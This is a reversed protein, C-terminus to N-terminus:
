PAVPELYLAHFNADEPRVGEFGFRVYCEGLSAGFLERNEWNVPARLADTAIVATYGTVPQFTADLLTIRLRSHTGLGSANVYMRAKGGASVKVACSVAQCYNAATPNGSVGSPYIPKLMGLRDRDWTALRVGTGENGKWLSYWYYTKDGVNEFGQGQMLAPMDAAPSGPQERAPILKFGPIPERHHIADHTVTLGLDISTYRRDGVPNGHWQGYIGLLVSGRNWLAAGLHVEERINWEHEISPGNLDNSRDLGVAACPSWHEFDASVFTALQRSAFAKHARTADQGNIYYKGRVKAIGAMEFFPGVPNLASLTWRLGDPSFAVCLRATGQNDAEYALKFRREPRPDEPDYLVAAAPRPAPEPFLVLNNSKSGNFEVLGLNPKEWHIGDTSRAYCFAKGPHSGQGYGIIAPEPGYNGFYWMHFVGEIRIVTGYFRVFEDPAGPPGHPLVVSHFRGPILRTQVRSQFPFATSDFAFLVAEGEVAGCPLDPLIIKTQAGGACPLALLLALQFLTRFCAAHDSKVLPPTEDSAINGCAACLPIERCNFRNL